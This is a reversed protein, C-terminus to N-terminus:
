LIVKEKSEALSLLKKAIEPAFQMRSSQLLDSEKKFCKMFSGPKLLTLKLPHHDLMIDIDAYFPDIRCLEEHIQNHM